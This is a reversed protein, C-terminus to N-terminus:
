RRIQRSYAGPTIGFRRKFHRTLHSQDSFGLDSAVDALEEGRAIRKRAEQVKRDLRFAHPPLGVVESFLRSLTTPHLGIEEALEPVERDRDDKSLLDLAKDIAPHRRAGKPEDEGSQQSLHRLVAGLRDKITDTRAHRCARHLGDLGAFAAECYHPKAAIGARGISASVFADSVYLMRYRCPQSGVRHGGHVEGAAVWVVAGPYLTEVTRGRQLAFVGELMIALAHHDHSHLSFRHDNVDNHFFEVDDLGPSRYFRVNADGSHLM